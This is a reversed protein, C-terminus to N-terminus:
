GGGLLELLKQAPIRRGPLEHISGFGIEQKVWRLAAGHDSMDTLRGLYSFFRRREMDYHSWHSCQDGSCPLLNPYREM